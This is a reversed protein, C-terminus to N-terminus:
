MQILLIFNWTTGGDETKYVGREGGSSWLPGEAAVFVTNSNRPDILIKGIHESTSLGMQEWTAGGNKSKYVGDGWGVHRGSVNEGTGVWVIEPNNPDISVTGISYSNQSDFVPQWTIGNNITKWLNGSGAAVYWTSPTTPSVAIDAIRGGMFAPGISRLQLGNAAAAIAEKKTKQAVIVTSFYPLVILVLLAATFKSAQM